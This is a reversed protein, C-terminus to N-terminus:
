NNKNTKIKQLEKFQKNFKVYSKVTQLTNLIQCHANWTLLHNGLDVSSRHVALGETGLLQGVPEVRKHREAQVSSHLEVVLRDTRHEQGTHHVM